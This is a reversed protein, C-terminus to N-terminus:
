KKELTQQLVVMQLMDIQIGIADKLNADEHMQAFSEQPDLGMELQELFNEMDPWLGALIM